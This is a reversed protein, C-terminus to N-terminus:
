QEVNGNFGGKHLAELVEGADLNTGQIRVTRQPGKGTYSVKADQFLKNIANQCAGCCVHVDKVIVVDTKGGKAAAPAEVAIAKGGQTASGFFGGKILAQVGAKAAQDNAATFTVMKTKAEAKVNSVGDVKALIDGVVRVCQKCCVHPGKVEVTSAAQDAGLVAAVLGAFVLALMQRM